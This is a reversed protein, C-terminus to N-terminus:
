RKIIPEHATMSNMLLSNPFKLAKLYEVHGDVYAVVSGNDHRLRDIKDYLATQPDYGYSKASIKIEDSVYPTQGVMDPNKLEVLEPAKAADKIKKLPRRSLLGHKNHIFAAM